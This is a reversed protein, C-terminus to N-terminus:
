TFDLEGSDHLCRDFVLEWIIAFKEPLAEPFRYKYLYIPGLKINSSLRKKTELSESYRNYRLIEEM